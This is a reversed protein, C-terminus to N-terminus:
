TNKAVLEVKPCIGSKNKMIDKISMPLYFGKQGISNKENVLINMRRLPAHETLCVDLQNQTGATLQSTEKGSM